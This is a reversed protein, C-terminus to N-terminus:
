KVAICTCEALQLVKHSVSGLMLGKLEGLGRSGLVLADAKCRKAHDLIRHAPDGSGSDTHIDKVGHERATERASNLIQEGVANAVRWRHEASPGPHLAAAVEAPVNPPNSGRPDEPEVLHEVEVMHGLNEPVQFNVVHFIELKAGHLKALDSAMEVAKRAHDSGDVAVMISKFM